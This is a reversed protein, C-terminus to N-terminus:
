SVELLKPKKTMKNGLENEHDYFYLQFNKPTENSVVLDDIFHYMHLQERFTYMGCIKKALKKDYKVGFSTFMFMNNYARIYTRFNKSKEKRNFKKQAM